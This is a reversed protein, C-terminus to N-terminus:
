FSMVIYLFLTGDCQLNDWCFKLMYSSRIWSFNMYFILILALYLSYSPQQLKLFNNKVTKYLMLPSSSFSVSWYKPGQHSSGVWEYLSQYQSLNFDFPSPLPLPHSPYIANIVWHVHIPAFELLCHFVSSGATFDTPECLTPCLKTVSCCLTM